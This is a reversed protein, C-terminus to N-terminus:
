TIGVYIVLVLLELVTKSIKEGISLSVRAALSPVNCVLLLNVDQRIEFYDLLNGNRDLAQARIGARGPNLYKAQLEPVFAKKSM